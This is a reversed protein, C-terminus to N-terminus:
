TYERAWLVLLVLLLPHQREGEESFADHLERVSRARTQRAVRGRPLRRVQHVHHDAFVALFRACFIPLDLIFVCWPAM